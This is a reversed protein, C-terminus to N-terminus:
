LTGKAPAPESPALYSAIFGVVVAMITALAQGVADPVQVGFLSLVWVLVIALSGGIGAGSAGNWTKPHITSM